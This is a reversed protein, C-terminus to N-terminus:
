RGITYGLVINFNQYVDWKESTRATGDVKDNFPLFFTGDLGISVPDTIYYKFGLGFPMHIFMDNTRRVVTEGGAFLAGNAVDYTAAIESQTFGVGVGTYGYFSTKAVHGEEKAKKSLGAVDIYLNLSFNHLIM